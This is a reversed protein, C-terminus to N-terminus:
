IRCRYQQNYTRITDPLRIFIRLLLFYDSRKGRKGKYHWQSAYERLRKIVVSNDYVNQAKTEDTYKIVNDFDSDEYLTQFITLATQTGNMIQKLEEGDENKDNLHKMVPAPYDECCAMMALAEATVNPLNFEIAYGLHILPHYAGGLLQALMEDKFIWYRVTELVGYKEIENTFLNLYSTYADRNRIEKRYTDRTLTTISAPIPRQYSAHLDFIEQLRKTDAGFAFAALYHHTLHNHFGCSNYFIDHKQHNKDILNHKSLDISASGPIRIAYHSTIPNIETPLVGM